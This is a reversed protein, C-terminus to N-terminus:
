RGILDDAFRTAIELIRRAREARAEHQARRAAARKAVNEPLRYRARARRNREEREASANAEVAAERQSEVWHEAEAKNACELCDVVPDTANWAMPAFCDECTLEDCSPCPYCDTTKECYHCEAVDDTNPETM